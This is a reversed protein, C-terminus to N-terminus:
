GRRTNALDILDSADGMTIGPAFPIRRRQLLAIQKESAPRARWPANNAKLKSAARREQTVYAEALLLAASANELGTALVRKPGTHRRRNEDFTEVEVAVEFKGLLNREITLKENTDNWPYRIKFVEDDARVWRMSLGNGYEAMDRIKWVDFTKAYAQLQELTFRGGLQDLNAGPHEEFFREVAEAVDRLDEGGANVGPPLGYLVPAAQLSHRRAVDVIDIVICETKGPHIRLGRGTMQEYLTASKTPKAHLICGTRPLDTGETLVMCNTIVQVDGRTYAELLARRVDRPTEGSLPRAVIGADSFAQALDHAHQVDVTFALTSQDNGHEQWAAVALQNRYPTNVENALDKQNFEGRNVRVNDLNATTEVVWPMIPVLWKDDIAAKLDYSYAITQFVCGLGIADTRNPTATVGVLLQDKPAREDWGALALQMLNVDDFTAAEANDEDSADAMPLFGLHALATRYSAAAAHHAEDVIVLKFRHRELLRKLRRCKVATLTQISAIVVDSMSSAHRDGQEIGVRANPNAAIIKAAAQDLLEERHAIVLMKLQQGPMWQRFAQLMAAFMVTKGTGTPKKVLLRNKGGLFAARVAEIADLQYQRLKPASM